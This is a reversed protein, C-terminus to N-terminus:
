RTTNVRGNGGFCDKVLIPLGHLLIRQQGESCEKDRERAVNVAEPNIETIAHVKPEIDNIRAIYMFLM